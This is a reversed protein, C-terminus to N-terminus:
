YRKDNKNQMFESIAAIDEKTPYSIREMNKSNTQSLEKKREKQRDKWIEYVRSNRICFLKQTFTPKHFSQRDVSIAKGCYKCKVEFDVWVHRKGTVDADLSGDHKLQADNYDYSHQRWLAAILNIM